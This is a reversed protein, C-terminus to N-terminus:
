FMSELWIVRTPFRNGGTPLQDLTFVRFPDCHMLPVIFNGVTDAEYLWWHISFHWKGLQPCLETASCKGLKCPARLNLRQCGGDLFCALYCKDLVLVTNWPLILTKFFDGICLNLRAPPREEHQTIYGWLQPLALSWHPLIPAGCACQLLGWLPSLRRAEVAVSTLFLPSIVLTEVRCPFLLLDWKWFRKMNLTVDSLSNKLTTCNKNLKALFCKLFKDPQAVLFFNIKLLLFTLLCNLILLLHWRFTLHFAINPPCHNKNVENRFGSLPWELQHQSLALLSGLNTFRGEDTWM